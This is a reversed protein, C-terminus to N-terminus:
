KISKLFEWQNTEPLELVEKRELPQKKTYPHLKDITLEFAEDVM